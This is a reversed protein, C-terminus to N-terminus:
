RNGKEDSECFRNIFGKQGFFRIKSVQKDVNLFQKSNCSLSIPSIRDSCAPYPAHRDNKSSSGVMSTQNGNVSQPLITFTANSLVSWNNDQRVPYGIPVAVPLTTPASYSPIPGTAIRADQIAPNRHRIPSSPDYQTTEHAFAKIEEHGGLLEQFQRETQHSYYAKGYVREKASTGLSRHPIRTDTDCVVNRESNNSAGKSVRLKKIAHNSPENEPTTM